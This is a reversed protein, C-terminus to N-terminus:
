WIAVFCLAVEEGAQTGALAALADYWPLRARKTGRTAPFQIFVLALSFSLIVALFQENSLVIGFSRFLDLSWAISTLAIVAAFLTRSTRLVRSEPAKEPSDMRDQSMSAGGPM